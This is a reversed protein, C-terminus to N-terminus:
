GLYQYTPIIGADCYLHVESNSSCDKMMYNTNDAWNCLSGSLPADNPKVLQLPCGQTHFKALEGVFTVGYIFGNYCEVVSDDCDAPGAFNKYGSWDCSACQTVSDGSGRSTENNLTQILLSTEEVNGGAIGDMKDDICDFTFMNGQGGTITVPEGWNCAAIKFGTTTINSTSEWETCTQCLEDACADVPCKPEGQYPVCITTDSFVTTTTSSEDVHQADVVWQYLAGGENQGNPSSCPVTTTETYAVSLSSSVTQSISHSVNASVAVHVWFIGASISEALSESWQNTTSDTDTSQTGYTFQYTFDENHEHLLQWNQHDFLLSFSLSLFL